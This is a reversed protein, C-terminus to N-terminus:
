SIKVSNIAYDFIPEYNDFQDQPSTCLIVYIEGDGQLWVAKHEKVVSGGTTLYAAEMADNGQVTANGLYEIEYDSNRSLSKYNSEFEHGIISSSDKSGDNIVLVELLHMNEDSVVLSGLCKRLYKEMNYTPIVISLIKNQEM